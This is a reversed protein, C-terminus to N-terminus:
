GRWISTQIAPHRGPHIHSHPKIAPQSIQVTELLDEYKRTLESVNMYEPASHEGAQSVRHRGIGEPAMSQRGLRTGIASQFCGHRSAQLSRHQPRFQAPQRAPQSPLSPHSAQSAPKAPQSPQSAQRAPQSGACHFAPARLSSGTDLM